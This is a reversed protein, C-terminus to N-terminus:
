ELVQHHVVIHTAINQRQEALELIVKRLLHSPEVGTFHDKGNVGYVPHAVNVPLVRMTTHKLVAVRLTVQLPLPTHNCANQTLNVVEYKQRLQSYIRKSSILHSYRYFM